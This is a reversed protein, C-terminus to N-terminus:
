RWGLAKDRGYSLLFIWVRWLVFFPSAVFYFFYRIPMGELISGLLFYSLYVILIVSSWLVMVENRNIFVVSLVFAIGAMGVLISNQPMIAEIMADLTKRFVPGPHKAKSWRLRQKKSSKIDVPLASYVKARHEWVVRKGSAIVQMFLDHDEVNSNSDWKYKGPVDARFCMGHGRLRCSLGINSRANERLRNVTIYNIYNLILFVSRKWNSIDPYGQIIENGDCLSSNMVNLFNGDVM